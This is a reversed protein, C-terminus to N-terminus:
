LHKLNSLISIEYITSINKKRGGKKTLKKYRKKFTKLGGLTLTKKYNKQRKKITTKVTKKTKEVIRMSKLGLSM